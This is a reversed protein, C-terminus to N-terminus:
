LQVTVNPAFEYSAGGTFGYSHLQQPYKVWLDKDVIDFGM